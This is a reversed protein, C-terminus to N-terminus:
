ERINKAHVDNCLLSVVQFLCFNKPLYFIGALLLWLGPNRFAIIRFLHIDESSLAMASIRQKVFVIHSLASIVSGILLIILFSNIKEKKDIMNVAIIM